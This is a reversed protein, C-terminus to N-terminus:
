RRSLMPELPYTYGTSTTTLMLHPSRTNLYALCLDPALLASTIIVALKLPEKM